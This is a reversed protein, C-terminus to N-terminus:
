HHKPHDGIGGHKAKCESVLAPDVAPLKIKANAPQPKGQMLPIICDAWLGTGNKVEGKVFGAKECAARVEECPNESARAPLVTQILSFVISWIM